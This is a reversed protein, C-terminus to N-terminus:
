RFYPRDGFRVDILGATAKRRALEGRVVGLVSVQQELNSAQDFRATWGDSTAVDLGSDQSWQFSVPQVGVGPLLSALRASTSLANADVHDGPVLAEAQAQAVSPLGV